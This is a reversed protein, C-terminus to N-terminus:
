DADLAPLPEDLSQEIPDSTGEEGSDDESAPLDDDLDFEGDGLGPSDLEGAGSEDGEELDLEPEGVDPEWQDDDQGEGAEEEAIDITEDVELDDAAADDLSSDEGLSPLVDDGISEDADPEDEAGDLPPLETLWDEVEGKM